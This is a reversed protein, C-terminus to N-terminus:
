FESDELGWRCEGKIHGPGERAPVPLDPSLSGWPHSLSPDLWTAAWLVDSGLERARTHTHACVHPLPVHEYLHDKLRCTHNALQETQSHKNM